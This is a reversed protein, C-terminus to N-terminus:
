GLSTETHGNSEPCFHPGGTLPTGCLVCRPRSQAVIDNIEEELGQFHARTALLVIEELEFAAELDSAEVTFGAHAPDFGIALTGVRADLSGQFSTGPEDDPERGLDAPVRELVDEVASGLMVMQEKELWLSVEGDSTSAHLRFTREGPEGFAEAHLSQVLGLDLRRADV